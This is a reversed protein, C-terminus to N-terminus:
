AREEYHDPAGHSPIVFGMRQDGARETQGSALDFGDPPEVAPKQSPEIDPTLRIRM